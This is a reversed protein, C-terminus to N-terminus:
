TSKCWICRFIWQTDFLIDNKWKNEGKMQQAQYVSVELTGLQKKEYRNAYRRTTSTVIPKTASKRANQHCDCTVHDPHISMTPVLLLQCCLGLIIERPQKLQAHMLMPDNCCGVSLAILFAIVAASWDSAIYFKQPRLRVTVHLVKEWYGEMSENYYPTEYVEDPTEEGELFNQKIVFIQATAITVWYQPKTEKNQQREGSEEITGYETSKQDGPKSTSDTLVLYVKIDSHGLNDGFLYFRQISTERSRLTTVNDGNSEDRARCPAVPKFDEACVYVNKGCDPSRSTRNALRHHVRVHDHAKKTETFYVSHDNNSIIRYQLQGIPESKQVAEATSPGRLKALQESAGRKIEEINECCCNCELELHQQQGVNLLLSHPRGPSPRSLNTPPVLRLEVSCNPVDNENESTQTVEATRTLLGDTSQTQYSSAYGILLCYCVSLIFGRM